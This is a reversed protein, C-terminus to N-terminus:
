ELSQFVALDRRPAWYRLEFIGVKDPWTENANSYGELMTILGNDIFLLFGAGHELGDIEALVDGFRINKSTPLRSVDSPHGFETFFGVGTHERKTVHMRQRQERLCSLAPEDGALLKDLVAMELENLISM